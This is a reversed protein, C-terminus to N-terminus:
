VIRKTPLTLHTYSVTGVSFSHLGDENCSLLRAPYSPNPRRSITMNNYVHAGGGGHEFVGFGAGGYISLDTSLVSSSDFVNYVGRYYSPIASGVKSSFRVSVTVLDGQTPTYGKLDANISYQNTAHKSGNFVTTAMPRDRICM